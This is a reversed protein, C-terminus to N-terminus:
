EDNGRFEPMTAHGKAAVGERRFVKVVTLLLIKVDLWFGQNDVYWVDLNFREEWSIVNRGNVVAWGTLGPRVELRRRQQGSYRSVYKTHLPRPGVLSMDGVLVNWFEPLEDLSTSRMFRGTRTLRREDPLLKGDEDRAHTMTRFKHVRFPRGHLGAREQHFHIPRGMTALIIPALLLYAPLVLLPLAFLAVFLDFARSM